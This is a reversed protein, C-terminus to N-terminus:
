SSRANRGSALLVGGGSCPQPLTPSIGLCGFVWSGLVWTGL